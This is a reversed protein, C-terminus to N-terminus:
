GSPVHVAGGGGECVCVFDHLVHLGVGVSSHLMHLGGGMMYCMYGLGVVVGVSSHLMHLGGGGGGPMYCM